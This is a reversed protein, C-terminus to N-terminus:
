VTFDINSIDVKYAKKFLFDVIKEKERLYRKLGSISFINEGRYLTRDGRLNEPFFAHALGNRLENIELIGSRISRPIDSINKALDLKNRLSIKELIFYNFNKFHKTKWLKIFSKRPNFFYHAIISGLMEDILTYDSVIEGVIYQRKIRELIPSRADKEFRLIDKHSLGLLEIIQDIEASYKKQTKTLKEM